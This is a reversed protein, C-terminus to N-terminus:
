RKDRRQRRAAIAGEYAEDMQDVLRPWAWVREAKERGARGLARRREPGLGVFLFFQSLTGHRGEVRFALVVRGIFPPRLPQRGVGRELQRRLDRPVQM